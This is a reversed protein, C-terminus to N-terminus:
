NLSSMRLKRQQVDIIFGKTDSGTDGAAKIEIQYRGEPIESSVWDITHQISLKFEKSESSFSRQVVDVFRRELPKLNISRLSQPEHQFHLPLPLRGNLETPCPDIAELQVKIDQRVDSNQVAVRYLEYHVVELAKPIVGAQYFSPKQPDFEITLHPKLVTKSKRHSWEQWTRISGIGVLAGVLISGWIVWLPANLLEAIAGSVAAGILSWVWIITQIGSIWEQLQRLSRPM